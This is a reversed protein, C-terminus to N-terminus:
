NNDNEQKRKKPIEKEDANNSFIYQVILYIAAMVIEFTFIFMYQCTKLEDDTLDKTTYTASDTAIYLYGRSFAPVGFARVTIHIFFTDIYQTLSDIPPMRRERLYAEVFDTSCVLSVVNVVIALYVMLKLIESWVNFARNRLLLPRQYHLTFLTADRRIHYINFLLVILIAPPCSFGFAIILTFQTVLTAMKSALVNENLRPLDIEREWCPVNEVIERQNYDTVSSYLSLKRLIAFRLLLIMTFSITLLNSCSTLACTNDLLEQDNQNYGRRLLFEFVAMQFGYYGLMIMPLSFCMVYLHIALSRSYSIYTKHNEMRVIYSAVKRHILDIIYFAIVFGIVLYITLLLFEDPYMHVM